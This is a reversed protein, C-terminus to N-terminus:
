SATYLFSQSQTVYDIKAPLFNLTCEHLNYLLLYIMAEVCVVLVSTKANM